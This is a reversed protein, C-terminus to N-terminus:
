DTLCLIVMHSVLEVGPDRVLLVSFLYELLCKCSNVAANNVFALLYFCGLHKGVSSRICLIHGLWIISYSEAM